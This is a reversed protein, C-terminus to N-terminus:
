ENPTPTGGEPANGLPALTAPDFGRRRAVGPVVGSDAILVPPMSLVPFEARLKEVVRDAIAEIDDDSLM